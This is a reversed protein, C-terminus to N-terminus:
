FYRCGAVNSISLMMTFCRTLELYMFDMMRVPDNSSNNRLTKSRRAGGYSEKNQSLQEVDSKRLNASFVSQHVNINTPM